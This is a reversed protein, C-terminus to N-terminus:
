ESEGENLYKILERRLIKNSANRPLEDIFQFVKPVKYRALHTECYDILSKKTIDTHDRLVIFAAPVKGWREDAVGTVGVEAVADHGSLCAEIEAPYVNEGGSVFMDKRRDLVYLFGEEDFYGIDGTSLWGDIIKEDNVQDKKYYGKTVNPGKVFIEGADDNTRDETPVVKVQSPFLPKGASGLKRFSDEPALTVIQSASESLGYTQFVPIGETECRKLLPYPAPGGGLLMCRFSSPFPEYTDADLVKSLMVSVVSAITVKDEHVSRVFKESEFGRHLVMTIGYIVSRILISLGSVHFLPVACLWRDDERLGLNLASGTASWWHNGYTLMVGKPHGTTGSTYIISHLDDLHISDELELDKQEERHLDDINIIEGFKLQNSINEHTEDVILLHVDADRLQFDIEKPTLRKNLPVMVVNLYHLAHILMVTNPHNDMLFGIHQGKQFGQAALTRALIRVADNLQEYTWTQNEFILATRKPTLYARQQLWNNMEIGTM